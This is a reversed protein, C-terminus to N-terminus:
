KTEYKQNFESQAQNFQAKWDEADWDVHEDMYNAEFMLNQLEQWQQEYEKTGAEKTAVLERQRKVAKDIRNFYRYFEEDRAVNEPMQIGDDMYSNYLAHQNRLRDRLAYYDPAQSPIYAEGLFRRMIPLEQTINIDEDGLAWRITNITNWLYKGGFISGGAFYELIHQVDSPNWEFFFRKIGSVSGDDNIGAGKVDSGGGVWNVAQCIARLVNNADALGLQYAPTVDSYRERHVPRGFADRNQLIDLVPTAISPTFMRVINKTFDKDPVPVALPSYTDFMLPFIAGFAEDLGMRGAIVEYLYVGISNFLSESGQSYPLKVYKGTSFIPLVMNTLRVHLPIEVDNREDDDDGNLMRLAWDILMGNLIGAFVRTIALAVFGGKNKEAVKFEQAAAQVSANFFMYWSGLTQSLEGKRNFNVTIDKAAQVAYFTDKGSELAALFTGFRSISESTEAFVNYYDNLTSWFNSWKALTPHSARKVNRAAEKRLKEELTKVDETFVYGTVGGGEKFVDYLTDMVRKQGYITMLTARDKPSHLVDYDGIEETTLPQGKGSTGRVLAGFTKPLNRAFLKAGGYTSDLLHIRFAHRIDRYMNAVVFSPSYSTFLGSTIRTLNGVRRTLWSKMPINTGNIAMAVQPDAFRISQKVGNVYVDVLRLHDLASALPLEGSMPGGNVMERVSEEERLRKIADYVIERQTPSIKPDGLTRQFEKITKRVSKSHELVEAEPVEGVGMPRWKGEIDKIMYRKSTEFIRESHKGQLTSAMAIDGALDLVKQKMKNNEAAMISRYGMNLMNAIPNAPKTARGEDIQAIYVGSSIAKPRLSEMDGFDYLNTADINQTEKLDWGMMPVYYKWRHGRIKDRVEPSLNGSEVLYDLVYKNAANVMDWLKKIEAAPIRQEFGAISSEAVKVNWNPSKEEVGEGVPFTPFGSNHRELASKFTIYDVIQDYKLQRKTEWTSFLDLLPRVFNKEYRGVQVKAKSTWQNLANYADNTATIEIGFSKTALEQLKKVPETSDQLKRVFKNSGVLGTDEFTANPNGKDLSNNAGADEMITKRLDVRYQRKVLNNLHKEDVYDPLIEGIMIDYEKTGVLGRLSLHVNLGNDAKSLYKDLVEYPKGKDIANIVDKAKGPLLTWLKEIFQKRMEGDLLKKDLGRNAIYGKLVNAVMQEPLPTNTNGSRFRNAKARLNNGRTIIEAKEAAGKADTLRNRSLWLLYVIDQDNVRLVGFVKDFMRRAWGVIREVVGLTVDGEALTAMYEEAAEYKDSYKQSWREQQPKTMGDWVKDLLAIFENDSDVVERLGKHGVAEHLITAEIDGVSNHMSLNIGISGDENWWGKTSRRRRERLKNPDTIDEVNTYVEVPTHLKDALAKAADAMLQKQESAEVSATGEAERYREKSTAAALQREGQQEFSSPNTYPERVSEALKAQDAAYKKAWEAYEAIRQEVQSRFKEAMDMIDEASLDMMGSTVEIIENGYMFAADDGVRYRRVGGDFDFLVFTRVGNEDLMSASAMEGNSHRHMNFTIIGNANSVEVREVDEFKDFRVRKNGNETTESVDRLLGDYAWYVHSDEYITKGRTQIRELNGRHFDYITGNEDTVSLVEGDEWIASRKPFSSGSVNKEMYTTLTGEIDWSYHYITDGERIERFDITDEDIWEEYIKDGQKGLHIDTYDGWDQMEEDFEVTGVRGSNDPLKRTAPIGEHPADKRDWWTPEGDSAFFALLKGNQFAVRKPQADYHIWYRASEDTLNGKGDGQLLCWPSSDEGFHTNIIRRMNQRSEESEEVDYVALGDEYEVKNSLTPVTDPDIRAEKLKVDAHANILEMPSKYAAPDVKAIEAVKVAQEVKPMDEPLRVTGNVFYHFAANVLKNNDLKDLEAIVALKEADSLDQRRKALIAYMEEQRRRGIQAMPVNGFIDFTEKGAVKQKSNAEIISKDLRKGMALDKLPMRAFKDVNLKSEPMEKKRLWRWFKRLWNHIRGILTAEVKQQEMMEVLIATGGPAALRAHVESALANENNAIDAYAPNTRVQEWLPTQKMLAVGEAWLKPNERQCVADWIHTYEHIPTEPNLGKETLYIKGNAVWGYVEGETTRLWQPENVEQRKALGTNDTYEGSYLAQKISKIIEVLPKGDARRLEISNYYFEVIHAKGETNDIGGVPQASIVLSIGETENHIDFNKTTASHDSLRITVINGNVAEFTAYESNSKERKAGIAKAVDGIFTLPRNTKEQYEKQLNDLNNLVKAGDTSSVVTPQHEDQVSVTEPVSKMKAEMLANQMELMEEVMEPTAIEVEIGAAKVLDLVEATSMKAEATNLDSEEIQYLVAKGNEEREQITGFLTDFFPKIEENEEASPYPWASQGSEGMLPNSEDYLTDKVVLLPSEINQEALKNYVYSEFLRAAREWVEYWYPGALSSRRSYALEGMKHVFNRFEQAVESRQTRFDRTTMSGVNGNVQRSLYNDLAHFWEHALSGAGKMRTLNIVEKLPEYHALARSKGRSGFALALRGGLSFAKPSIGVVKCLDMIADYSKNLYLQREAQPVWNGFEVGRVGFTDLFDQPTVDRGNRYDPGQREVMGINSGMLAATMMIERQVLEQANDQLFQEAVKKSNFRKSLYISGPINRSKIRYYGREDKVIHLHGIKDKGDKGEKGKNGEEEPIVPCVVQMKAVAQSMTAYPWGRSAKPSAVVWYKGDHRGVRIYVSKMMRNVEPYNLAEYTTKYDTYTGLTLELGERVVQRINARQRAREGLSEVVEDVDKDTVEVVVDQGKSWAFAADRYKELWLGKRLDEGRVAMNLALLTTADQITMEGEKVYKIINARSLIKDPDKLNVLDTRSYAMSDKIRQRAVDKRAGGIKEGFDEIKASTGEQATPTPEEPQEAPANEKEVAEEVSPQAVEEAVQEPQISTTEEVVEPAEAPAEETEEATEQPTAESEEAPTEEVATAPQEYAFYNTPKNYYDLFVPMLLAVGKDTQVFIPRNDARGMIETAGLHQAARAFKELLDVRLAVVEGNPLPLMVSFNEVFTKFAGVKEGSDKRKHWEEKLKAKLGGVFTLVNEPSIGTPLAGKNDANINVVVQWALKSTPEVVQGKVDVWKGEKDSQYAGKDAVLIHADTAVAFGDQHIVHQLAPNEKEGETDLNAELKYKGRPMVPSIEGQEKLRQEFLKREETAEVEEAGETSAVEEVEQEPQTAATEEAVEPAEQAQGETTKVSKYEVFPKTKRHSSAVWKQFEEKTTGTISGLGQWGESYNSLYAAQAEEITNFGYMVKHEDFSGDPKVQDIVYVNGNWGDLNDSLFLDIHDGDVGETGRIYGYTNNMTVSWANGAEDVGSREVGKPTEITIDFGDIKIHGKKYNGAKKQSETPETATEQEAQEIQADTSPKEVVEQESIQNEPESTTDKSESLVNALIDRYLSIGGHPQSAATQLTDGKKVNEALFVEHVYLRNKNADQMARCFVYNLAGNYIIPYAFYHNLVGDQRTGDEMTGLYVANEFGEVLSTIADLKKQGYRHALSSEISNRNIEVEGVETDYLVAEGVNEDWWKEAAKRASLEATSAIIGQKVDIVPANRLMDGRRQKEEDPMTRPDLLTIETTQPVETVKDTSVPARDQPQEVAPQEGGLLEMAAEYAFMKERIANREESIKAYEDEDAVQDMQEATADLKSQLNTLWKAIQTKIEEDSADSNHARMKNIVDRGAQVEPNAPEPTIAQITKEAVETVGAIEKAKNITEDFSDIVPVSADADVENYSAKRAIPIGTQPEEYSITYGEIDKGNVIARTGDKLVIEDGQSFSRVSRKPQEAQVSEQQTAEAIVEEPSEMPVEIGAEHAIEADEKAEMAANTLSSQGAIDAYSQALYDATNWEQINSLEGLAVQEPTGSNDMIVISQKPNGGAYDGSKVVYTRGNLEATVLLDSNQDFDGEIAYPTYVFRAIDANQESFKRTDAESEATSNLMKRGLRTRVYNMATAADARSVGDWAVDALAVSMDTISPQQMATYVQQRLAIDSIGKLYSKERQKLESNAQGYKVLEPSQGVFAATNSVAGITAVVLFTEWLNEAKFNEVLREPELTALPETFNVFLEEVFEGLTGNWGFQDHLTRLLANNDMVGYLGGLGLHNGVKRMAQNLPAGVLNGITLESFNELFSSVGSKYLREFKSTPAWKSLNGEADFNLQGSKFYQEQTLQEYTLGAQSTFPVTFAAKAAGEVAEKIWNKAGGKIIKGALPKALTKLGTSLAGGIPSGVAFGAMYPASAAAGYGVNAARTAGGMGSIYGEVNNRLEMIDFVEQEEPTLAEGNEMKRLVDSIERETVLDGWGATLIDSLSAGARAGAVMQEVWTDKGKPDTKTPMNLRHRLEKVFSLRLASSWDPVSLSHLQTPVASRKKKDEEWRQASANELRTLERSLYDYFQPLKQRLSEEDMQRTFSEPAIKAAEDFDDMRKEQEEWERASLALEAMANPDSEKAWGGYVDARQTALKLGKNAAGVRGMISEFSETEAPMKASDDLHKNYTATASEM